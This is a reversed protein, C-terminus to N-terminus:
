PLLFMLCPHLFREGKVALGRPGGKNKEGPRVAEQGWRTRWPQCRPPAPGQRSEGEGGALRMLREEGKAGLRGPAVQPHQMLSSM